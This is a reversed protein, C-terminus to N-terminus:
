TTDCTHVKLPTVRRMRQLLAYPAIRTSYVFEQKNFENERKRTLVHSPLSSRRARVAAAAQRSAAHAVEAQAGELAAEAERRGGEVAEAAAAAADAAGRAEALQRGAARLEGRLREAAESEFTLEGLAAQRAHPGRPQRGADFCIAQEVLLPLSHV